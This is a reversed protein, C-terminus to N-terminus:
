RTRWANASRAAMAAAASREDTDDGREDARSPGPDGTRARSPEALQRAADARLWRAGAANDDIEDDDTDCNCRTMETREEERLSARADRLRNIQIVAPQVVASWADQYNGGAAQARFGAEVARILIERDLDGADARDSTSQTSPDCHDAAVGGAPVRCTRRLESTM